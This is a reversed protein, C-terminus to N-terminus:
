KVYYKNEDYTLYCNKLIVKVTINLDKCLSVIQIIEEKIYEYNKNKLEVLNIVYDIEVASNKM